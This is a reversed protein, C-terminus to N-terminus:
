IDLYQMTTVAAAPRYTAGHNHATDGGTGATEGHGHDGDSVAANAVNQADLRQETRMVGTGSAGSGWTQVSHTHAGANNVTHTHDPLNAELLTYDPLTWSGANAGGAVYTAGGKVVIVRDTASAGDVAWGDMVGATDRYVFIKQLVDGHMLGVWATDGVNRNKLLKQTTDFFLMGAVTNGPGAAGSFSSKLAAFNNEVSTMDTDVVEAPTYCNTTYTQAM